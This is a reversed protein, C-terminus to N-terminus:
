PACASRSRCSGRGPRGALRRAASPPSGPGGSRGACGCLARSWRSRRARPPHAAPAAREHWRSRSPRAAPRQVRRGRDDCAHDDAGPEDDRDGNESQQGHEDAPERRRPRCGEGGAPTARGPGRGIRLVPGAAAPVRGVRLRPPLGGQHRHHGDDHHQQGAVDTVTVSVSISGPALSSADICGVTVQGGGAQASGQVSTQATPSPSRSPTPRTPRRTSPWASTSAPRGRRARDHRAAPRACPRRGPGAAGAHGQDAVGLREHTNGNADTVTVVIPLTGDPLQSLDLNNWIVQDSGGSQVPFNSDGGVSLAIQDGPDTPADFSPSSRPPHRPPRTSTVPRTPTARPCASAADPRDPRENGQRWQRAM